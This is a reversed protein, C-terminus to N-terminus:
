IPKSKLLSSVGLRLNDALRSLLSNSTVHPPFEVENKLFNSILVNYPIIFHRDRMVGLLRSPGDM